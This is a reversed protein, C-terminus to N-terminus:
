PSCESVIQEAITKFVDVLRLIGIIKQGRTVLLSDHKGIVLQHIALDLTDSETVCEGESITQMFSNVKIDGAKRCLHDLPSNFLQFQEVLLRQVMPRLGLRAVGSTDLIQNYKPELGRLIDVQSIKGIIQQNHDYVLINRHPFPSHTFEVQAKELAMVAERLSADVSVTAYENLPVTLEQVTKTKM